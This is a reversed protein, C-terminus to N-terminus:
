FGSDQFPVLLVQLKSECFRAANICVAVKVMETEKALDVLGEAQECRQLLEEHYKKAIPTAGEKVFNLREEAEPLTRCRDIVAWMSALVAESGSPVRSSSLASQSIGGIEQKVVWAEEKDLALRLKEWADAFEVEAWVKLWDPREAFVGICSMVIGPSDGIREHIDADALIGSAQVALSRMRTDFGLVQDASHLWLAAAPGSPSDQEQIVDVLGPLINTRFHDAVVAMLCNVWEERASYGTLRAKDIIPQLSEDILDVYAQCMTYALACVLEPMQSWKRFHYQSRSAFPTIVEEMIWLPEHVLDEVLGDSPEKTM